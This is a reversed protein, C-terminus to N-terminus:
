GQDPDPEPTYNYKLLDLGIEYAVMEERNLLEQGMYLHSLYPGIPTAKLKQAGDVLKAVVAQLLIGWDVKQEGLLAGFITNGVTVTVRTPKELYLIPILFELVRKARSDKCNAIAFGDKPNTANRFKGGIFKDTKSAFGDGEASFGYAERWRGADWTEPRMRVTGKYQNPAGIILERVMKEDKVTWPKSLLGICGIRTLDEELYAREGPEKPIAPVISRLTLPTKGTMPAM